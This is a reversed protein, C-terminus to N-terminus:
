KIVQWICEYESYKQKWVQCSTGRSLLVFPTLLQLGLTKRSHLKVLVSMATVVKVDVDDESRDGIETLLKFVHPAYQEFEKMITFFTWLQWHHQSWPLHCTFFQGLPRVLSRPYEKIEDVKKELQLQVPSSDFSRCSLKSWSYIPGSWRATNYVCVRVLCMAWGNIEKLSVVCRIEISWSSIAM